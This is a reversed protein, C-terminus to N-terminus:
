PYHKQQKDQLVFFQILLAICNKIKDTYYYEINILFKDCLSQEEHPSLGQYNKHANKDNTNYFRRFLEKAHSM